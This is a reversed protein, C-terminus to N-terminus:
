ASTIINIAPCKNIDTRANRGIIIFDISNVPLHMGKIDAAKFIMAPIHLVDTDKCITVSYTGSDKDL